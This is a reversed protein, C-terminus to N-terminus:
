IKVWIKAKLVDPRLFLVTLKGQLALLSFNTKRVIKSDFKLTDLQRPDRTWFITAPEFIFLDKALPLRYLICYSEPFFDIELCPLGARPQQLCMIEPKKTEKLPVLSAQSPRFLVM